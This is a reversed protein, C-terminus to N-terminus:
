TKNSVGGYGKVKIRGNGGVTSERQDAKYLPGNACFSGILGISANQYQGSNVM